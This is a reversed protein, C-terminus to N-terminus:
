GCLGKSRAAGNMGYLIVVAVQFQSENSATTASCSRGILGEIGVVLDSQVRHAVEVTADEILGLLDEDFVLGVPNIHRFLATEVGKLAVLPDDFFAIHDNEGCRRAKTGLMKFLGHCLSPMHKHFLGDGAVHVADLSNKRRAFLGLHFVEFDGNAQLAAM